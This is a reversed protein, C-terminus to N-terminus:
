LAHLQMGSQQDQSRDLKHQQLQLCAHFSFLSFARGAGFAVKGMPRSTLEAFFSLLWRSSVSCAHMRVEAHAWRGSCAHALV